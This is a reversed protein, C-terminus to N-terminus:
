ITVESSGCESASVSSSASGTPDNQHGTGQNRGHSAGMANKRHHPTCDLDWVQGVERLISLFFRGLKWM